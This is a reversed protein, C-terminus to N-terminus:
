GMGANPNSSFSEASLERKRDLEKGFENEEYALETLCKKLNYKKRMCIEALNAWASLDLTITRSATGINGAGTIPHYVMGVTTCTKKM